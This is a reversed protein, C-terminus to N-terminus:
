DETAKIANEVTKKDWYDCNRNVFEKVDSAKYYIKQGYKLYPLGGETRYRQLTRKSVHLMFCLDQNDLLKDDKDFVENTNILSKLDKGVENIMKSLKGMWKEFIEKDIYM